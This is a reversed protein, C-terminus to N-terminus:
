GSYVNIIHVVEVRTRNLLILSDWLSGRGTIKSCPEKKGLSGGNNKILTKHDPPLIHQYLLEASPDESFICVARTQIHFAWDSLFGPFGRSVQCHVPYGQNKYFHFLVIILILWWSEQFDLVCSYWTHAERCINVMSFFARSINKQISFIVMTASLM